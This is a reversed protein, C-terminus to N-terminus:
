LLHLIIITHQLSFPEYKDPQNNDNGCTVEAKHTKLRGGGIVIGDTFERPLFARGVTLGDAYIAPYGRARHFLFRPAKGQPEGNGLSVLAQRYDMLPHNGIGKLDAILNHDFAIDIM